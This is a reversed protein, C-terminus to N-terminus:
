LLDDQFVLFILPMTEEPEYEESHQKAWQALLTRIEDTSMRKHFERAAHKMAIATILYSTRQGLHASAIGEMQARVDIYIHNLIFICAKWHESQEM